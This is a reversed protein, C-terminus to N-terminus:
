CVPICRFDMSTFRRAGTGQRFDTHPFPMLGRAHKQPNGAVAGAVRRGAVKDSFYALQSTVTRPTVTLRWSRDPSLYAQTTPLM